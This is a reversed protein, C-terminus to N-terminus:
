HNHECWSAICLFREIVHRVCIFKVWVVQGLIIFGVDDYEWGRRQRREERVKVNCRCLNLNPIVEDYTEDNFVSVIM